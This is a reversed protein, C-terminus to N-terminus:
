REAPRKKSPSVGASDLSDGDAMTPEVGSIEGSEPTGKAAESDSLPTELPEQTNAATELQRGKDSVPKTGNELIGNELVPASTKQEDAALRQM